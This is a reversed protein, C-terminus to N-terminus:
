AGWELVSGCNTCPNTGPSIGANCVPCNTTLSMSVKNTTAARRGAASPAGGSFNEGIRLGAVQDYPIDEILKYVEADATLIAGQAKAKLVYFFVFAPIAVILGSATCILVEGIAMALKSPDGIGSSGLTAFAKIMGIVTGTLGIMPTVVGIVSLYTTNTKLLTGEKMSTEQIAFDVADRSRGIRELGAALVNSLFCKNAQCITWAEQYNGSAIAEHLRARLASPVLKPVRLKIFGEVTFGVMLVSALALFYMVIGGEHWIDLITKDKAPEKKTETAPTATEGAPAPGEQARAPTPGVLSWALVSAIVCVMLRLQKDIYM